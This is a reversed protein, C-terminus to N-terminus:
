ANWDDDDDDDDDDDGTAAPQAVKASARIADMLSGGSAAPAKSGAPTSSTSSNSKNEITKFVFTKRPAADAAPEPSSASPGSSSKRNSDMDKGSMAAQRQKLRDRLASMMDMGGGSSSSSKKDGSAGAGAKGGSSPPDAIPDGNEDRKVKKLKFGPNKIADLLSSRGGGDDAPKPAPTSKKAPVTVLATSPAGFDDGLLDDLDPPPPPASASPTSVDPVSVPAAPPPPANSKSASSSNSAPAQPPPPPPACSVSTTSASASASTSVSTSASASAPTYTSVPAPQKPKSSASLGEFTLAPLAPLHSISPAISTLLGDNAPVGFSIDALKALPLNQSFNFLPVEGLEPKYEFQMGLFSPLEAGDLVSTPAAALSTDTKEREKNMVGELNNFSSYTKYPNEQSNFLIIGSVSPLNSPLRGLGELGLENGQLEGKETRQAHATMLDHFLESTDVNSPRQERSRATLKYTYPKSATDSIINDISDEMGIYDNLVKKAPYKASSFITCVKTPNQAIQSVKNNADVIRALINSISQKETQIKSSIRTFIADISANLQELNEFAQHLSEAPPLDQLVLPIEFVRDTVRLMAATHM